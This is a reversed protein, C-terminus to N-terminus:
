GSRYNTSNISNPIITYVKPNSNPSYLTDVGSGLLDPFPRRDLPLNFHITTFIQRLHEHNHIGGEDRDIGDHWWGCNGLGKDIYTPSQVRSYIALQSKWFIFCSEHIPKSRALNWMGQASISVAISKSFIRCPILINCNNNNSLAHFQM